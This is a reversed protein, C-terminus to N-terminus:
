IGKLAEKIDFTGRGEENQFSVVGKDSVKLIIYLSDATILMNRRVDFFATVTPKKYFGLELALYSGNNSIGCIKMPYTKGEVCPYEVLVKGNENYVYLDYIETDEALLFAVIGSDSIYLDPNHGGPMARDFDKEYVLKGASDYLALSDFREVFGPFACKQEFSLPGHQEIDKVNGRHQTVLAVFKGSPSVKPKKDKKIKIDWKKGERDKWKGDKEKAKLKMRKFTKGEEDTFEVVSVEKNKSLRIKPDKPEAHLRVLVFAAILLIFVSNKKFLM